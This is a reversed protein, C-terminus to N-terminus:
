QRFRAAPRWPRGECGPPCPMCPVACDSSPPLVPGWHGERSAPQLSSCTLFSSPSEVLPGSRGPGPPVFLCWRQWCFSRCKPFFCHKWSDRSTCLPAPCPRVRLPRHSFSALSRGRRLQNLRSLRQGGLLRAPMDCGTCSPLGTGNWGLAPGGDTGVEAERGEGEWGVQSTRWPVPPGRRLLLQGEPCPQRALRADTKMTPM